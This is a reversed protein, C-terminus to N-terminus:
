IQVFKARRNKSDFPLTECGQVSMRRRHSGLGTRGRREGGGGGGRESRAGCHVAARTGSARKNRLTRTPRRRSKKDTRGVGHKRTGNSHTPERWAQGLPARCGCSWTRAEAAGLAAPAKSM